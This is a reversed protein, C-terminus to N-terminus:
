RNIEPFFEVALFSSTVAEARKMIGQGQM